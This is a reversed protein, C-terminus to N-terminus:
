CKAAFANARAALRARSEQKKREDEEAKLRAKEEEARREEEFKQLAQKEVEKGQEADEKKKAAEKMERRAAAEAKLRAANDLTNDTSADKAAYHFLAAKGAVGARATEQERKEKEKREKEEREAKERASTEEIQRMLAEAAAIGAADVFPEHLKFGPNPSCPARGNSSASREIEIWIL